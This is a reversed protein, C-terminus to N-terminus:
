ILMSILASDKRSFLTTSMQAPASPKQAKPHAIAYPTSGFSGVFTLPNEPVPSHSM